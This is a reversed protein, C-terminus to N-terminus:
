SKRYRKEFRLYALLGALILFIVAFLPSGIGTNLHTYVAGLMLIGLAIGGYFATKPIILLLGSLMELVGIITAFTASYGWNEFRRIMGDNPFLKPYGGAIMYLGVLIGLVWAVINRVKPNM